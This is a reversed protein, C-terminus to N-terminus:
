LFSLETRLLLRRDHTAMQPPLLGDALEGVLEGDLRGLNMLPHRQDQFFDFLDELLAGLRSLGPM